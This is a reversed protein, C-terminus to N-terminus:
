KKAGTKRNEEELRAILDRIYAVTEQFRPEKRMLGAPRDAPEVALQQLITSPTGGMIYVRDGLFVAEDISHTVFFVTAQGGALALGVPGAHALPDASRSGRLARGHPHDAPPPDAHPRHGGAPAHRRFARPSVQRTPPRDLGVHEIWQRGLEHRQRRSVGQCELGFAINELVTRHDFSTYDQFVM